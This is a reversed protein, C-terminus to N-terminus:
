IKNKERLSLGRSGQRGEKIRKLPSSVADLTATKIDSKLMELTENFATTDKAFVGQEANHQTTVNGGDKDDFMAPTLGFPGLVQKLVESRSNNLLDNIRKERLERRSSKQSKITNM